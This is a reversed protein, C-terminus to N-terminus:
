VLQQDSRPLLLGLGLGLRYLLNRLGESPRVVIEVVLGPSNVDCILLKRFHLLKFSM